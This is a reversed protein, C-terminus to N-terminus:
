IRALLDVNALNVGQNGLFEPGTADWLILCSFGCVILQFPVYVEGVVIFGEPHPLPSGCGICESEQKVQSM